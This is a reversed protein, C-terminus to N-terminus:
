KKIYKILSYNVRSNTSEDFIEFEILGTNLAHFYRPAREPFVPQFQNFTIDVVNFYKINNLEYESLINLVDKFYTNYKFEGTKKDINHYCSIRHNDFSGDLSYQDINPGSFLEVKLTDVNSKSVLQYKVVELYDGDCQNETYMFVLTDVRNKLILTDIFEIDQDKKFIWMDGDAFSDFYLKSKTTLLYTHEKDCRSCSYFVLVVVIFITFKLINEKM